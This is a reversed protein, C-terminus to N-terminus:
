NSTYVFVEQTTATMTNKGGQTKGADIIKAEVTIPYTAAPPASPAPRAVPTGAEQNGDISVIEAVPTGVAIITSSKIAAFELHFMVAYHVILCAAMLITFTPFSVLPLVVLSLTIISAVM